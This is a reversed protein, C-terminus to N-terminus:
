LVLTRVLGLLTTYLRRQVTDGAAMLVHAITDELLNGGANWFHSHVQLTLCHTREFLLVAQFADRCRMEVAM